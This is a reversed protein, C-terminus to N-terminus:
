EEDEVEIYIVKVNASDRSIIELKVNRGLRYERGGVEYLADFEYGISAIEGHQGLEIYTFATIKSLKGTNSFEGVRLLLNSVINDIAKENLTFVWLDEDSREADMGVCHELSFFSTTFPYYLTFALNKGNITTDVFISGGDLQSFGHHNNFHTLTTHRGTGDGLDFVKDISAGIRQNYAYLAESSLTMSNKDSTIQMSDSVSYEFKDYSSTFDEIEEILASYKEPVEEDTFFVYDEKAPFSFPLSSGLDSQSTESVIEVTMVNQENAAVSLFIEIRYSRINVTRDVYMILTTKDFNVRYEPSLGLMELVANRGEEGFSSFILRFLDDEKSYEGKEFGGTIDTDTVLSLFKERDYGGFRCKGLENELYLENENLYLYEFGDKGGRRFVARDGDIFLESDTESYTESGLIDIRVSTLTSRSFSGYEKARMQALSLIQDATLIEIAETVEATTEPLPETEEDTKEPLTTEAAELTEPVLESEPAVDPAPLTDTVLIEAETVSASVAPEDMPEVACSVFLALALFAAAFLVRPKM